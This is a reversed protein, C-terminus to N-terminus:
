VFRAEEGCDTCCEVFEDGRGAGIWLTQRACRTCSRPTGYYGNVVGRPFYDRRAYPDPRYYPDRRAYTM